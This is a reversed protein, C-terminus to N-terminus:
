KAYHKWPICMKYCTDSNWEKKHIFINRYPAVANQKNMWRNISMQTIEMKQCNYIISSHVNTYLYGKSDQSETRQSYIGWLPIAPDDKTDQTKKTHEKIWQFFFLITSKYHPTLKQQVVFHSLKVYICEWKVNKKM